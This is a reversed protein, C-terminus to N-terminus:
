VKASQYARFAVRGVPDATIFRTYAQPLTEGPERLEEARREISHHLDSKTFDDLEGYAIM